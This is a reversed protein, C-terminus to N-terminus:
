KHGEMGIVRQGTVAVMVAAAGLACIAWCLLELALLPLPERLLNFPGQFEFFLLSFFWILFTLRWLRLWYGPPWLVSIHNFLFAYGVLVVTWGTFIVYPAKVMVMTTVVALVKTSQYAPNFLIGSRVGFDYFTLGSLLSFAVGALLGALGTRWFGQTLEQVTRKQVSSRRPRRKTVLRDLLARRAAGAASWM